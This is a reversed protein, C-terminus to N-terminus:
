SVDAAKPEPCTNILVLCANMTKNKSLIDLINKIKFVESAHHMRDPHRFHRIAFIHDNELFLQLIVGIFLNKEMKTSMNSAM